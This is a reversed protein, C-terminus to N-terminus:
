LSSVESVDAEWNRQGLEFTRGWRHWRYKSTVSGALLQQWALLCLICGITICKGFQVTLSGGTDDTHMDHSQCRRAAGLDPRTAAGLQCARQSWISIPWEDCSSYFVSIAELLCFRCIEYSYCARTKFPSGWLNPINAGWEIKISLSKDERPGGPTKGATRTPQLNQVATSLLRVNSIGVETTLPEHVSLKSM